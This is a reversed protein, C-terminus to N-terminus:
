RPRRGIARRLSTDSPVKINRRKLEDALLKQADGASMTEPPLGHPWLDKAVAKAPGVRWEKLPTILQEVLRTVFGKPELTTRLEQQLGISLTHVVPKQESAPEAAESTSPTTDAEAM